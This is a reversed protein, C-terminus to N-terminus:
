LGPGGIGPTFFLTVPTSTLSCIAAVTFTVTRASNGITPSPTAFIRASNTVMPTDATTAGASNKWFAAVGAPGICTVLLSPAFFSLSLVVSVSTSEVALSATKGNIPAFPINGPM